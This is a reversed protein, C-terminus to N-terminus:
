FNYPMRYACCVRTSFQDKICIRFCKKILNIMKDYFGYTYSTELPVDHEDILIISRVGNSKYICSSLFQISSYYESDEAIMDIFRNYRSKVADNLIDFNILLEKQRTFEIRILEKFARYSSEFNDKKMNKLSLTIVPYKGQYKMHEPYQAINLEEFLYTNSEKSKEFFRQFMSM